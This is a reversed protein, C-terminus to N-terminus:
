GDLRNFALDVIFVLAQSELGDALPVLKLLVFLLDFPLPLGIALNLSINRDIRARLLLVLLSCSHLPILNLGIFVLNLDKLLTKRLDDGVKLFFLLHDSVLM